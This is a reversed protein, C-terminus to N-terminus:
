LRKQPLVGELHGQVQAIVGLVAVVALLMVVVGVELLSLSTLPSPRLAALTLVL